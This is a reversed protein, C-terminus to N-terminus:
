ARSPYRYPLRIAGNSSWFFGGEPPKKLDLLCSVLHLCLYFLFYFIFDIQIKTNKGFKITEQMKDRTEEDYSKPAKEAISLTIFFFCGGERGEGQIATVM